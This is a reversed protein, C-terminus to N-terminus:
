RRTLTGYPEEDISAQEKGTEKPLEENTRELTSQCAMSGDSGRSYKMYIVAGPECFGLEDQAIRAVRGPSNSRALALRLSKQKAKEAAIKQEVRRADLDSSVAGQQMAVMFVGTGAMILLVLMLFGFTLGKRVKPRRAINDKTPRGAAAKKLKGTNPRAPRGTTQQTKTRGTNPRAPRGTTTTRDRTM